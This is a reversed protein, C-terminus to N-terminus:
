LNWVLYTLSILKTLSFSSQSQVYVQSEYWGISHYWRTKTYWAFWGLAAQLSWQASRGERCTLSALYHLGSIFGLKQFWILIAIWACGMFSIQWSHFCISSTKKKKKKTLIGGSNMAKCGFDSVQYSQLRLVLSKGWSVAPKL